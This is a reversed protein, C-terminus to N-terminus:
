SRSELAVFEGSFRAASEGAYELVAAVAVRGRGRRALAATFRQWGDAEALSARATFEGSMPKLYEMAHRQIVLRAASGAARLRVYVLSWAALIALTSASGGFVTESHNINPALPARLVVTEEALSVVSMAMARSLPIHAYLYRELELPLM